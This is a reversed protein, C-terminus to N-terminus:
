GRSIKVFLLQRENADAVSTSRRGDADYTETQNQPGPVNICVYGAVPQVCAPISTTAACARYIPTTAVQDVHAPESETAEVVSAEVQYHGPQLASGSGANAGAFVSETEAGTTALAM